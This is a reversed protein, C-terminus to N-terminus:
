KTSWSDVYDDWEIATAREDIELPDRTDLMVAVENTGRSKQEFANEM